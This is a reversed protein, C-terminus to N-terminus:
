FPNVRVRPTGLAAVGTYGAGCVGKATGASM